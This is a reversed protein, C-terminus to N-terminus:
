GREFRLRIRSRRWGWVLAAVVVTGGGVLWFAPDGPLGGAAPAVTFHLPTAAAAGVIASGLRRSGLTAVVLDSGYYGLRARVPVTLTMPLTAHARPVLFVENGEFQVWDAPVDLGQASRLRQVRASYIGSETGTNVIYLGPLSYTQGPHADGALVVPNAAVGAGASAQASAASLTAGLIGTAVAAVIRLWGM